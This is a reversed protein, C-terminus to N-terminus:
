PTEEMQALNAYVKALRTDTASKAMSRYESASDIEDQWNERYREIDARTVMIAVTGSPVSRMRGRRPMNVETSTTATSATLRGPLNGCSCALQGGPEADVRGLMAREHSSLERWPLRRNSSATRFTDMASRM